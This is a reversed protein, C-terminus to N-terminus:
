LLSCAGNPVKSTTSSSKRSVNAVEGCEQSLSLMRVDMPQGTLNGPSTSQIGGLYVLMGTDSAPIYVMIGEARGIDDLASSNTWTNRIMDYQLLTSLALPDGSWTAVSANSLWGGYWFGLARDEVTVGAGYSARNIPIQTVDPNVQTWNNGIADFEWTEYLPPAVGNFEGGYLYFKKNVTDPWLIGGSVSPATAPKTLNEYENPMGQNNVTLDAYLLQEDQLCYNSPRSNV